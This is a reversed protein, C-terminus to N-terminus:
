FRFTAGILPGSQTADFVIGKDDYDVSLVRWGFALSFTDTFAYNAGATLGWEWDAGVGFGGVEANGFVSWRDNITYQGALGILPDIWSADSDSKRKGFVTDVTFENDLWWARAGVYADVNHRQSSSVTRGIALALTSTRSETIIKNVITGSGSEKSTTKVMSGDFYIVWPGNRASSFLFLGYDLDDLIDGFSLDVSQAPFGPVTGLDGELGALWGYPTVNFEWNSQAVSSTAFLSTGMAISASILKLTSGNSIM